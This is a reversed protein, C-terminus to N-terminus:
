DTKDFVKINIFLVSIYLFNKWIDIAFLSGYKYLEKHWFNIHLINVLIGSNDSLEISFLDIKM